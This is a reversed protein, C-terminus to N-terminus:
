YCMMREQAREALSYSAVTSLVNVGTENGATRVWRAANTESVYSRANVNMDKM